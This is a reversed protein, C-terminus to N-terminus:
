RNLKKILDVGQQEGHCDDEEEKEQELGLSSSLSPLVVRDAWDRLGPVQLLGAFPALLRGAGDPRHPALAQVRLVEVLLGVPHVVVGLGEVGASLPAVLVM